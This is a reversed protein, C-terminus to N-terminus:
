PSRRELACQLARPDDAGVFLQTTTNRFFPERIRVPERLTVLLGSRGMGLRTTGRKVREVREISAVNDKAVEISRVLPSRFTAVESEVAHMETQMASAIALGWVVAYFHGVASVVRLVPHGSFLLDLVLAEPILMLTLAVFAVSLVGQQDYSFGSARPTRFGRAIFRAAELIPRIELTRWDALLQTATM